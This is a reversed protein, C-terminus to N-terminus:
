QYVAIPVVVLAPGKVVDKLPAPNDMNKSMSRRQQRNMPINKFDEFIEDLKVSKGKPIKRLVKCVMYAEGVFNEQECKFYNEDLYAILPFKNDEFNFVCAIEKGSKLEGLASIGTIAEQTKKDLVPRETIGQIVDALESFKKVTNTLEKMKSFRATVLVELFEDRQLSNYEDDTLFEYYKIREDEDGAELYKFVKDFKAADSIKVSRNVEELSKSARGGEGSAIKIGGGGKVTNETSNSIAQVEEDYIYGELAALYDNIIKTNLYLFNRLKM